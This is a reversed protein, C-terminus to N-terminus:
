KFFKNFLESNIEVKYPLEEYWTKTDAEAAASHASFKWAPTGTEGNYFMIHWGYTTKVLGMEGVTKADFLWTEFEEDMQGKNVNEYFVNSDSTHEKGFEEFKEKSVVGDQAAAKIEALIKDAEAKAEDFTKFTGEEKGTTDVKFLIHGVNRLITEDRYASKTVYYVTLTYNGKAKEADTMSKDDIDYDGVNANTGEEEKEGYPIGYQAKVGGFLFKGLDSELTYTGTKTASTIVSKLNAIVSKPLTEKATEWKTKTTVDAQASADDKEIDTKGALVADIIKDMVENKYAELVDSAPKDAAAFKSVASDYAAKFSDSYKYTVLLRKFEDADKATALKEIFERDIEKQIDNARKAEAEAAAVADKYEQSDKGGEYLKEDVKTPTVKQSLSFSLYEAKVFSALNDNFYEVKRDDTMNDYIRDYVVQYYDSAIHEIILAKRLDNKSIYEGFYQRLYDTLGLGAKKAAAKISTISEDAYKEAEAEMEAFNVESDVRAAECYKLYTEVAKETGEVFYDYYTQEKSSDTYQEHLSKSPDFSIYGLIIYYYYNSYWNQYYSNAYYAMMSGNVTFNDSSAGTQMRVFIGSSVVLSIILGLLIAITVILAALRPGSMKKKNVPKVQAMTKERRQKPM